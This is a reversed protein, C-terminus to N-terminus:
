NNENKALFELELARETAAEVSAMLIGALSNDLVVNLAEITTGM